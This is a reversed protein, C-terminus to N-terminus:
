VEFDSFLFHLNFTFSGSM